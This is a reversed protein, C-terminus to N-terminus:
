RRKLRWGVRQSRTGSWKSRPDMVSEFDGCESSLRYRTANRGSTLKVVEAEFAALM